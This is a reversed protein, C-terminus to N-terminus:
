GSAAASPMWTRGCRGRWPRTSSRSRRGRRRKRRRHHRPRQRAARRPDPAPAADGRHLQHVAGRGTRVDPRRDRRTGGGGGGGLPVFNSAFAAQVGPCRRSGAFSTRCASRRPAAPARVGRGAPLVAADAAAGHRFGVNANQLNLFSRIFLSAGVLLVLSMSVEVVVLANRVGPAAAAPRAARRRGQPQGAPQPARGAAGAGARVRHRDADLDRDHLWALPRRAGLSHLLSDLGASDGRDLLQLFVWAVAIGLPASLLGIMVAETLLQRIIRLRGAGLAARLSIERHRASARALLLNAVNSCAIILVLTVAGMMALIVLEVEEPIM